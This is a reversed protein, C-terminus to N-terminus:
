YTRKKPQFADMTHPKFNVARKTVRKVGPTYLSHCLWNADDRDEFDDRAHAGRSEKREEAAIAAVSFLCLAVVALCAQRRSKHKM